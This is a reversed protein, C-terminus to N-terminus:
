LTAGPALLAHLPTTGELDAPIPVDPYLTRAWLLSSADALGDDDLQLSELLALFLPDPYIVLKRTLEDMMAGVLYVALTAAELTIAGSPYRHVVGRAVREYWTRNVRQLLYSFQSNEDGLQFVCRLLGANARCLAIWRRNSSRIAAFPGDGAPSTGELDFWVELLETLVSLSIDAKDQFYIYFSGEALGADASVDSVRLAHYGKECLLRAASIRLRERTRLGKQRPPQSDLRHELFAIFDLNRTM